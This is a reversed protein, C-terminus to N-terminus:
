VGPEIRMPLIRDDTWMPIVLPLSSDGAHASYILELRFLEGKHPLFGGGDRVAHPYAAIRLSPNRDPWDELQIEVGNPLIGNKIVKHM